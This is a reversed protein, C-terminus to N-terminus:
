SSFRSPWPSMCAPILQTSATKHMTKWTSVHKLFKREMKASVDSKAINQSRTGEHLHRHKQFLHNGRPCSCLYMCVIPALKLLLHQKRPKHASTSTKARTLPLLAYLHWGESLARPGSQIRLEEFFTSVHLKISSLSSLKLKQVLRVSQTKLWWLTM